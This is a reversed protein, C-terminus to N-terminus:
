APACSQLWHVGGDTTCFLGSAAGSGGVLTRGGGLDALHFTSLPPAIADLSHLTWGSSAQWVGFLTHTWAGSGLLASIRLDRGIGRIEFDTLVLGRPEAVTQFHAGSDTSVRLSLGDSTVVVGGASPDRDGFIQYTNPTQSALDTCSGDHRCGVVHVHGM